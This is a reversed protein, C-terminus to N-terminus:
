KRMSNNPALRRNRIRATTLWHGWLMAAVLAYSVVTAWAVGPPGFIEGLSLSLLVNSSAGVIASKLQVSALGESALGRSALGGFAVFCTSLAYVALVTAGAEFAPGFVIELIESGTLVLILSALVSAFFIVVLIIKSQRSLRGAGRLESIVKPAVVLITVQALLNGVEAIRAAAAYIALATEGFRIQVYIQDFRLYLVVFISGLGIPGAKALLTKARYPGLRAFTPVRRDMILLLAGYLLAESGWILGFVWVPANVLFGTFAAFAAAILSLGRLPLYDRFAHQAQFHSTLVLSFAGLVRLGAAAYYLGITRQDLGWFVTLTLVYISFGFVTAMTVAGRLIPLRGSPRRATRGYVVNQLGFAAVPQQAGAVAVAFAFTGFSHLDGARAALATLLLALLGQAGAELGFGAIKHLVRALRTKM